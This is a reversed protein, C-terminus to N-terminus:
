HYKIKLNTLFQKPFKKGFVSHWKANEGATYSLKLHELCEDVSPRTLRKKKKKIVAIRTPIYCCRKTTEIQTEKIVFLKKMLKNGM